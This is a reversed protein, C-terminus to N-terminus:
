VDSLSEHGIFYGSAGAALQHLTEPDHIPM